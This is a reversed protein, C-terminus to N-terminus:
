HEVLEVNHKKLEIMISPDCLVNLEDECYRHWNHNKKVDYTLYGPHCSIETLGDELNAIMDSLIDKSLAGSYFHGFFHDNYKINSETLISKSLNCTSLLMVRRIRNRIDFPNAKILKKELALRIYGIHEEEAIKVLLKLIGPMMHIQHHSDLHTIDFGDRRIRDIQNKFEVYIEDPNIKGLFYRSLFNIYGKHFTGKRTLLTPVEELLSVPRFSGTVTLHAGITFIGRKHALNVADRYGSACAILSISNVAGKKYCHMIGRNIGDDLGFDDANIILRKAM